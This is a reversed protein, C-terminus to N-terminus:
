LVTIDIRSADAEFKDQFSPCSIFDTYIASTYVVSISDGSVPTGTIEIGYDDLDVDAGSLQWESGTYSFAYTGATDSVASTFIYDTVTADTIGSGSVTTSTTGGTSIKVDLAYASGGNEQIAEQAFSTITSTQADEGLYFTIEDALTNKIGSVDIASININVLKLDFKIFLEVINARDFHIPITQQSVSLWNVTENGRTDLAGGYQYIVRAVDNDSGGDVVVWITYAPTGTADTSSTNNVWIQADKVDQTNLLNAELADVNNQGNIATSRNRRLRFELDSEQEEGTVIARNPNTVSTVGLVKTIQNIVTGIAPSYSGYNQSRFLLTHTGAPLTASTILYWNGGANDGVTYSTANVDNYNADLGALEVTRDCTLEIELQSFIGGKRTLFNLAYRSDQVVGTCKDADFSNYVEKILERMDTGIQALINVLQGDPTESGFNVVDGDQAYIDNMGSTLATVLEEYSSVTLGNENIIDM